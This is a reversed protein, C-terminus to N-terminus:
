FRSSRLHTEIKLSPVVHIAIFIQFMSMLSFIKMEVPSNNRGEQNIM